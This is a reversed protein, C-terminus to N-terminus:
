SKIKLGEIKLLDTKMKVGGAYGILKGNSGIVRHCPIIIAIPNKGNAAGVARVAKESKIRKAQEKYTITKGFPVNSLESWVKKQFETGVLLLPLNFTKLKGQFYQKLQNQTEKIILNSKESLEASKFYKLFDTSDGAFLLGILQAKTAYLFLDGIPSQWKKFYIVQDSNNSKSLPM